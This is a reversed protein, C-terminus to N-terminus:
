GASVSREAGSTECTVNVHTLPVPALAGSDAIMWTAAFVLLLEPKAFSSSRSIEAATNGSNSSAANPNPMSWASPGPWPFDTTPAYKTPLLPVGRWAM